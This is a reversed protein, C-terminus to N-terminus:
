TKRFYEYTNLFKQTKLPFSQAMREIKELDLKDFDISPIDLAYRGLSM